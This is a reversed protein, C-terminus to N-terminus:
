SFITEELYRHRNLIEDYYHPTRITIGTHNAIEHATMKDHNM